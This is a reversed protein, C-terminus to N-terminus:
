ESSLMDKLGERMGRLKIGLEAAKKNILGGKKPRKATQNLDASKVPVVLEKKLGFIKCADLAIEHRNIFDPGSINYIGNFKEESLKLAAYALDMVYTPTYFQDVPAKFDNKGRLNHILRSVFNLNKKDWGYVSSTRIIAFDKLKKVINEAELKQKGYECNPNPVDDESYPGSEGDFVSDSSFFILKCNNESCYNVINETGLVNVKRCKDPYKEIYDLNTIGAALYIIDQNIKKLKKSADNFQSLDLKEFDKDNTSTGVVDHKEGIIKLIYSGVFGKAGIVLSKM